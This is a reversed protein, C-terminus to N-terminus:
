RQNTPYRIVGASTKQRYWALLRSQLQSRAGKRRIYSEYAYAGDTKYKRQVDPPLLEIFDLKTIDAILFYAVDGVTIRDSLPPCRPDSMRTTNTVQQILCPVVTEGAGVIADYAADIGSTGKM